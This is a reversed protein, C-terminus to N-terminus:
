RFHSKPDPSDCTGRSGGSKRDSTEIETFRMRSEEFFAAYTATILAAYYSIRLESGRCAPAPPIVFNSATIKIPLPSKPNPSSCTGRSCAPVPRSRGKGVSPPQSTSHQKDWELGFAPSSGSKRGRQALFTGRTRRGNLFPAHLTDVGSAEAPFRPLHPV